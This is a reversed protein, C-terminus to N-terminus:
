IDVDENFNVYGEEILWILMKARANPETYDEVSHLDKGKPNKYGVMFVREYHESESENVLTQVYTYEKNDVKLAPPLMEGLERLTPAKIMDEETPDYMPERHSLHLTYHDKVGLRRINYWYWGGYKKPYGLIELKKCLKLSPVEKERDFLEIELKKHKM